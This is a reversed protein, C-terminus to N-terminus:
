EKFVQYIKNFYLLFIAFWGFTYATYTELFCDHNLFYRLCSYEVNLWLYGSYQLLYWLRYDHLLM